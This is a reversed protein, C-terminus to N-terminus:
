SHAHDKGVPAVKLVLQHLFDRFDDSCYAELSDSAFCHSLSADRSSSAVLHKIKYFHEYHSYEHQCRHTQESAVM